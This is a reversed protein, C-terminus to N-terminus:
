HGNLINKREKDIFFVKEVNTYFYVLWRCNESELFYHLEWAHIYLAPINSALEKIQIHANRDLIEWRTVM